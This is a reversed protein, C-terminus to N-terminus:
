GESFLSRRQRKNFQFAPERQLDSTHVVMAHMRRKKHGSEAETLLLLRFEKEPAKSRPAKMSSWNDGRVREAKAFNKLTGSSLTFACSSTSCNGISDSSHTKRGTFQSRPEGSRNHGLCPEHELCMTRSVASGRKSLHQRGTSLDYVTSGPLGRNLHM